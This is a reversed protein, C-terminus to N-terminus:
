GPIRLKNYNKRYITETKVPRGNKDLPLNTQVHLYTIVQVMRFHTCVMKAKFIM